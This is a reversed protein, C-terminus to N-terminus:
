KRYGLFKVPPHFTGKDDTYGGPNLYLEMRNSHNDIFRLYIKGVRFPQSLPNCALGYENSFYIENLNNGIGWLPEKCTMFPFTDIVFDDIRNLYVKFEFSDKMLPFDM